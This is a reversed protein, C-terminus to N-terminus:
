GFPPLTGNRLHIDKKYNRVSLNFFKYEVPATKWGEPVGAGSRLFCLAVDGRKQHFFYCLQNFHYPFIIGM